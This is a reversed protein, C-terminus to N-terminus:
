DNKVKGLDFDSEIKDAIKYSGKLKNLVDVTSIRENTQCRTRVEVFSFGKWELAEKMVEKLNKIHFASTRAYYVGKFEKLFNYVNIPEVDSGYPSTVTKKGKESTPALQGGTMGYINNNICIVTINVNRRACHLLHNGGIGLLDGDGSFVVVNLKENARKIGEAVPLARGHCTHVSDVATYGAGRGTCGIGSVVCIDKKEWELEEFRKALQKLSVAIVCGPCWIGPYRDNLYSM